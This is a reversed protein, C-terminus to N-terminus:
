SPSNNTCPLPTKPKNALNNSRHNFTQFQSLYKERHQLLHERTDSEFRKLTDGIGRQWKYYKTRLSSGNLKRLAYYGNEQEWCSKLRRAVMRCAEMVSYDLLTLRWVDLCLNELYMGTYHQEAEFSKNPRGQRKLGYFQELSKLEGRYAEDGKLIVRGAWEPIPVDAHICLIMARYADFNTKEPKTGLALLGVLASAKLSGEVQEQRPIEKLKMLVLDNYGKDSGVANLSANINM